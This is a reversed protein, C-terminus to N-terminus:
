AFRDTVVIEELPLQGGRPNAPATAKGIALMMSIVHDQPLHILRAVADFDFGVMPCSDYGMSKATLMLTQALIGCSRMVEDRQVQDRGRYYNDIAPLIFGLFEESTNRWYRRPEKEWSKVDGCLVLLLSADTVQSQNWAVKRVEGRLERDCIRVMRWNQINFSTPSLLALSLLQQVEPEPIIYAPDFHKVARRLEIATNVEMFDEKGAYTYRNITEKISVSKDLTGTRKGQIKAPM